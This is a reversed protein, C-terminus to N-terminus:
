ECRGHDLFSDLLAELSHCGNLNWTLRVRGAPWPGNGVLDTLAFRTGSEHNPIQVDNRSQWFPGTELEIEFKPVIQGALGSGTALGPVPILLLGFLTRLSVM